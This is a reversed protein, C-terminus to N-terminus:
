AADEQEQRLGLECAVEDVGRCWRKRANRAQDVEVGLAAAQDQPALIGRAVLPGLKAALPDDAFRAGLRDYFTHEMERAALQEEPDGAPDFRANDIKENPTTHEHHESKKRRLNSVEGRVLNKLHQFIDPERDPDWEKYRPDLVKLIAAQALDEAKEMSRKRICVYAFRQLRLSISRWELKAVIETIRAARAASIQPPDAM